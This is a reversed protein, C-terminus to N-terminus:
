GELQTFRAREIGAMASVQNDTLPLAMAEIYPGSHSLRVEFTSEFLSEFLELMRTSQSWFRVQAKEINWVMDVTAASPLTRGKMERSVSERIVEKESRFLKPKQTRELITKSEIEIRAKMLAGPLRWQDIRVGLCLYEGRFVGASTFEVGLLNEFDCWGFSFDEETEPTLAEFAFERIRQLVADRDTPTDGEVHYLQYSISGKRAGM